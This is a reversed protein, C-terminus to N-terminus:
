VTYVSSQKQNAVIFADLVRSHIAQDYGVMLSLQNMAASFYDIYTVYISTTRGLLFLTSNGLGRPEYFAVRLETPPPIQENVETTPQLAVEAECEKILEAHDAIWQANAPHDVINRMNDYVGDTFTNLKKAYCYYFSVDRESLISALREFSELDKLSLRGSDVHMTLWPPVASVFLSDVLSPKM